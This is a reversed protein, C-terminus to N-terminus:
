FHVKSNWPDDDGTVVTTDKKASAAGSEQIINVCFRTRMERVVRSWSRNDRWQRRRVTENLWPNRCTHLSNVSCEGAFKEEVRKPGLKHILVPYVENSKSKKPPIM